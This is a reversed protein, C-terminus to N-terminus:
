ISSVSSESSSTCGNERALAIGWSYMASIIALITVIVLIVVTAVIAYVWPGFKNLAPNSNFYNLFASNWASGAVFVLAGSIFGFLSPVINVASDILIQIPDTDCM